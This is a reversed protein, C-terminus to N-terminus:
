FKSSQLTRFQTLLEVTNCDKTQLFDSALAVVDKNPYFHDRLYHLCKMLMFGNFYQWFRKTFSAYNSTNNKIEELQQYFNVEKLWQAIPEALSLEQDHYLSELNEFLSKLIKFSAYNYSMLNQDHLISGVAKGTGFPVRDSSRPSPYVCVEHIEFIANKSIFKHLFYFDEGAKRKNMGGEKVYALARVVMASGVTHYAHPIGISRQAQIFYRLHLEYLIIADYVEQSFDDGKVPHEFYISAAAKKPHKKFASIILKFYNESITSDADLCFILHDSTGNQMLQYAAIDMGIKRAWGVGSNKKDDFEVSLVQILFDPHQKIFANIHDRCTSTLDKVELSDTQRHNLVIIVGINFSLASANLLSDLTKRIELEKYAPIVVYGDCNQIEQVLEFKLPNKEFYSSKLIEEKSKTRRGLALL